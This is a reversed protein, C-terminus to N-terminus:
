VNIVILQQLTSPYFYVFTIYFLLALFFITFKFNWPLIFKDVVLYSILLPALGSAYYIFRSSLLMVPLTFYVVVLLGTYLYFLYFLGKDNWLNKVKFYFYIIIALSHLLFVKLYVLNNNYNKQGFSEIKSFVSSLIVLNNLIFSSAMPLLPLLVLLILIRSNHKKSLYGSVPKYMLIIAFIFIASLHSFIALFISILEVFRRGKIHAAIALYILVLALGQRIVNTFLLIFTSTGVFLILAIVFQRSDSIILKFSIFVILLYCLPLLYFFVSEDLGTLRGLYQIFTFFYSGHYVSFISKFDDVASYM